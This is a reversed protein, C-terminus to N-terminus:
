DWWFFVAQREKIDAQLAALTGFGQDVTDPCFAYVEKAFAGLDSPLKALKVDVTDTSAEVIDIGVAEHWAEFRRILSETGMDYNVADTRAIRLIDFQDTGPGLVLEVGEHQEDGLWRTTGIFAVWGSGIIGARVEDLAIRAEREPMVVSTAGPERARGFDFTSYERAEAGTKAALYDKAAQPVPQLPRPCRVEGTVEVQGGGSEERLTFALKWPTEGGIAKKIPMGDVADVYQKSQGFPGTNLVVRRRGDPNAPGFVHLLWRPADAGEVEASAIDIWPDDGAVCSVGVGAVTREFDGKFTLTM